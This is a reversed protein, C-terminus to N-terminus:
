DQHVEENVIFFWKYFPLNPEFEAYAGKVTGTMSVSLKYRLRYVRLVELKDQFYIASAIDSEIIRKETPTM